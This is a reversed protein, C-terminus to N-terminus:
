GASVLFTDHIVRRDNVWIYLNWKGLPANGDLYFPEYIDKTNGDYTFEYREILQDERTRLELVFHDEAQLKDANILLIITDGQSFKEKLEVGEIRSGRTRIDKYTGFKFRRVQADGVMKVFKDTSLKLAELALTRVSPVTDGTEYKSETKDDFTKGAYMAGTLSDIVQLAIKTKVSLTFATYPTCKKEKTDKDTTCREKDRQSIDASVDLINGAIITNVSTAKGIEIATNSDIMGTYYLDQETLTADLQARTFPVLGEYNPLETEILERVSDVLDLKEYQAEYDTDMPMVGVVLVHEADPQIVVQHPAVTVHFFLFYVVAGIAAAIAGLIILLTNNDNM